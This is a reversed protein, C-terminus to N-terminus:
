ANTQNIHFSTSGKYATVRSHIKYDSYVAAAASSGNLLAAYTQHRRSRREYHTMLWSAKQKPLARWGKVYMM